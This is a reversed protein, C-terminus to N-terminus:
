WLSTQNMRRSLRNAALLLAFNIASNFLGVAASFGYDMGLVGKRYV